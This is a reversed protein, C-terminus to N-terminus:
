AEFIARGIRLMTSGEEIAAEFDDSMGMSLVRLEYGAVQAARIDKKEAQPAFGQALSVSEFGHGAGFPRLEYVKDRLEKLKKFFPRAKDQEDVVPAMTMLGCLRINKYGSIQKVLQPALEPMIGYKSTEGSVNVEILIDQIKGINAAQKDIEQALRLSDVSHILDFIQVADKVKNTQLHGIMHWRASQALSASSEFKHYKLLAEQVKNEGLDRIGVGLVEQIQEITRGKTV